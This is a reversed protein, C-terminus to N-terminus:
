WTWFLRVSFGIRLWECGIWLYVFGTVKLYIKINVAIGHRHKELPGKRETM